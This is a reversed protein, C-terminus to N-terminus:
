AIHNFSTFEEDFIICFGVANSIQAGRYHLPSPAFCEVIPLIDANHLIRENNDIYNVM